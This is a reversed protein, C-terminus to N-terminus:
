VMKPLLYRSCVDWKTVGNLRAHMADQVDKRNLYKATEDEICM